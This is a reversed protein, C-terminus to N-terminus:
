GPVSSHAEHPTNSGDGGGGDGTAVPPCDVPGHILHSTAVQVSVTQFVGAELPKPMQPACIEHTCAVWDPILAHFSAHENTAFCSLV